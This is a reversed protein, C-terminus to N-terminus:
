PTWSVPPSNRWIKSCRRRTPKRNRSTPRWPALSAQSLHPTAAFGWSGKLLVRIGIGASESLSISSVKGHEAVLSEHAHREYRADAYDVGRKAVDRMVRDLLHKPLTRDITRPPM